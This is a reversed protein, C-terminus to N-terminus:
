DGGVRRFFRSSNLRFASGVALASAWLRRVCALAQRLGNAPCADADRKRDFGSRENRTEPAPHTVSSLLVTHSAISTIVVLQGHDKNVHGLLPM